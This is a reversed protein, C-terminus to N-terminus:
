RCWAGEDYWDGQVLVYVQGIEVTRVFAGHQYADWKVRVRDASRISPEINRAEFGEATYGDLLFRRASSATFDNLSRSARFAPSCALYVAPWDDRKIAAVEAKFIEAVRSKTLADQTPTATGTVPARTPAPTATPPNAGGCNAAAVAFVAAAIILLAKRGTVRSLSM